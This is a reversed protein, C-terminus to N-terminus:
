FIEHRRRSYQRMNASHQPRGAPKGLAFLSVVMTVYLLMQQTLPRCLYTCQLDYPKKNQTKKLKLDAITKEINRTQKVNQGDCTKCVMVM